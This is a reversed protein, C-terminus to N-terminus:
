SRNTREDLELAARDGSVSLTFNLPLRYNATLLPMRVERGSYGKKRWTGCPTSIARRKRIKEWRGDLPRLAALPARLKKGLAANAQAIEAEHHPFINDVGGCHIDLEPGLIATAMASGSSTGVRDARGWPSDWRVDGDNEDWAKWLAFDGV